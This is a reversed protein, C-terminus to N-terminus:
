LLFPNKSERKIMSRIRNKKSLALTVEQPNEMPEACIGVDKVAYGLERFIQPVENIQEGLIAGYKDKKDTIRQNIPQRCCYSEIKDEMQATALSVTVDLNYHFPQEAPPM